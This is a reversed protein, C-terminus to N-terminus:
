AEPVEDALARLWVTLEADAGVLDATFGALTAAGHREILRRLERKGIEAGLSDETFAAAYRFHRGERTREVYGKDTLRVLITMVTTYALKRKSATNLAGLVEAVTASDKHWLHAMVRKELPGLPTTEM